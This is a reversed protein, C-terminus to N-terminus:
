RVRSSLRRSTEPTRRRIIEGTYQSTSRSLHKDSIWTLSRWWKPWRPRQTVVRAVRESIRNMATLKLAKIWTILAKNVSKFVKCWTHDCLRPRLYGRKRSCSARLCKREIKSQSIKLSENQRFPRSIDSHGQFSKGKRERDWTWLERRRKM